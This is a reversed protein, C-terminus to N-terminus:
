ICVYLLKKEFLQPYEEQTTDEHEWTVNQLGYCMWQIYVLDIVQNRIVKIKRDLIHMSQVQFDDEHELQIVTWDIVHNPDSVYKKLLSVRFVNHICM